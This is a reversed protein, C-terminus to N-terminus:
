LNDIVCFIENIFGSLAWLFGHKVDTPQDELFESTISVKALADAKCIWEQLKFLTNSDINTIIVNENLSENAM